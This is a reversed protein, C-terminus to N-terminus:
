KRRRVMAVGALALGFLATGPEPVAPAPPQFTVSHNDFFGADTGSGQGYFASLYLTKDAPTFAANTLVPNGNYFASITNNALDEVLEYHNWVGRTVFVGTSHTVGTSFIQLEGNQAINFDGVSAGGAYQSDLATWFSRTGALTLYADIDFTVVQGTLNMNAVRATGTVGAAGLPTILVDQTGTLAFGSEVATSGAAGSVIWGDQGSITGPTFTPPEFGTQYVIGAKASLSLGLLTLFLIRTPKMLTRNLSTTSHFYGAEEVGAWVDSIYGLRQFEQPGM